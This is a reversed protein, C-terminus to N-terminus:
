FVYPNLPNHTQVFVLSKNDEKSIKQRLVSKDINLINNFKQSIVSKPYGSKCLWIFLDDLRKDRVLPDDVITCIM